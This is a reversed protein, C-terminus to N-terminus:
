SNYFALPDDDEAEKKEIVPEGQTLKPTSYLHNALKLLDRMLYPPLMNQRETLEKKLGPMFDEIVKETQKVNFAFKEGGFTPDSKLEKHWQSRIQQVEEQRKKEQAEAFENLKKVEDKRYEVIAKVASEPLNHEKALAKIDEVESPILGTTDGLDIEGEKPEDKKDPEKQPEEKKPEAPEKDYGTVPEKPGDEKPDKQESQPKDKPEPEKPEEKVIPYGLDDFEGGDSEPNTQSTKSPEADAVYGVVPKPQPTTETNQM